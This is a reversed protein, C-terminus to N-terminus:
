RAIVSYKLAEVIFYISIFFLIITSFCFIVQWTEKKFIFDKFQNTVDSILLTIFVGLPTTWFFKLKIKNFKKTLLLKLKDETIFLMNVNPDGYVTINKNIVESFDLNSGGSTISQNIINSNM